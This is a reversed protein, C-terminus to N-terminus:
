LLCIHINATVHISYSVQVITYSIHFSGYEWYLKRTENMIVAFLLFWNVTLYSLLLNKESNSLFLLCYLIFSCGLTYVAKATVTRHCFCSSYYVTYFLVVAQLTSLRQQWLETVYVLNFKFALIGRESMYSHTSAVM